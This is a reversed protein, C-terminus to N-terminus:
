KKSFFRKLFARRELQSVTIFDDKGSIAFEISYKLVFVIHEIGVLFMFFTVAEWGYSYNDEEVRMENDFYSMGVFLNQYTPSTFYINACNSM